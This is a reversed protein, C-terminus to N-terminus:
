KGERSSIHKETWDALGCIDRSRADCIEAALSLLADTANESLPKITQIDDPDFYDELMTNRRVIQILISLGCFVRMDANLARVFPEANHIKGHRAAAQVNDDYRDWPQDISLHHIPASPAAKPQSADAKPSTTKAAM